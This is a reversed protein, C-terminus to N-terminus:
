NFLSIKINQNIPEDYSYHLFLLYRTLSKPLYEQFITELSM